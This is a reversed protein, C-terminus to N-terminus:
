ERLYDILRSLLDIDDEAKGLILNCRNCLLGRVKNSAHCHDVYLHKRNGRPETADCTKCTGGQEALMRNYDDLTIGYARRLARDRIKDPNREKWERAAKRAKDRNDLRWQTAQKSIRDRIEPTSRYRERHYESVCTKCTNNRGGAGSGKHFDDFPKDAKCRSCRKM